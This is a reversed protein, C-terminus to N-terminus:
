IPLGLSMAKRGRCCTSLLLHARPNIPHLPILSSFRTRGHSKEWVKEDTANQHDYTALITKRKGDRGGGGWRRRRSTYITDDNSLPIDLM